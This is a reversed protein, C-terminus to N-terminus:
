YLYKIMQLCDIKDFYIFNSSPLFYNRLDASEKDSLGLITGYLSNNITPWKETQLINLNEDLYSFGLFIIHQANNIAKIIEGTIQAREQYITKLNETYSMIRYKGNRSILGYEVDNINGINGYVHYIPFKIYNYTNASNRLDSFSNYLSNNLYYELSRDYNFTVFSVKNYNIELGQNSNILGKTLVQFLFNYWDGNRAGENFGSNREHDAITIAIAMKGINEYKRNRSLFLDISNTSSKSFTDIFESIDSSDYVEDRIGIFENYTQFKFLFSEIIEKRLEAGTPFSYPCSAGAGLIFVTEKNIM